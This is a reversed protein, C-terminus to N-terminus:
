KVNSVVLKGNENKITITQKITQFLNPEFKSVEFTTENGKTITPTIEEVIFDVQNGTIDKIYLYDEINVFESFQDKIVEETMYKKMENEFESYKIGTWTYESYEEPVQINTDNQETMKLNFSSLLYKPGGTKINAINDYKYIVDTAEKKSIRDAVQVTNVIKMAEEYYEKYLNEEGNIEIAYMYGDKMITWIKAKTNEKEASFEMWKISNIEKEQNYNIKEYVSDELMQKRLEENTFNAEQAYINIRIDYYTGDSNENKPGQVYFIISGYGNEVISWNEKFIGEDVTIVDKSFLKTEYEIQKEEQKDEVANEEKAEILNNGTNRAVVYVIGLIIILIIIFTVFNFEISKKKEM